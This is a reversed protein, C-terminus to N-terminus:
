NWIFNGKKMVEIENFNISYESLKFQNNLGFFKRSM